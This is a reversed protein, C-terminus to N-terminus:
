GLTAALEIFERVKDPAKRGEADEVGSSVDVTRAGTTRVAEALNSSKLGGALMWPKTFRLGPMLNWDFSKGTGGTPEAGIRTDFLLRDAVTEYIAVPKFDEATAIRLVKMVHLGTM